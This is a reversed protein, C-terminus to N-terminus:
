SASETAKVPEEDFNHDMFADFDAGFFASLKACTDQCARFIQEAKRSDTDYGFEGCFDEFTTRDASRADCQLNELVDRLTPATPIIESDEIDSVSLKSHPKLARILALSTTDKSSLQIANPNRQYLGRKRLTAHASGCKYETSFSRSGNTLLLSWKYHRWVTGKAQKEEGPGMFTATLKIQSYDM